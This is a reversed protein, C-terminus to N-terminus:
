YVSNQNFYNKLGLKFIAPDNSGRIIAPLSNWLTQARFFPSRRLAETRPRIVNVGSASLRTAAGTRQIRGIKAALVSATASNCLCRYSLMGLQTAYRTRIPNLRFLDLLAAVGGVSATSDDYRLGALCRLYRKEIQALRSIVGASGDAWVAAGYDLDPQIVSRVFALRAANSLLRHCRYLVGIKRGVKRIVNDMQPKWSLRSDILVGLYRVHPSPSLIVNNVSVTYISTDETDRFKPFLLFASKQGNLAMLNESYWSTVSNIDQQLQTVAGEFTENSSYLCADDAYLILSSQSSVVSTINRTFFNFLLPGLKSGQPVGRRVPSLNSATSGVSVFQRRDLLYSSLWALVKGKVGCSSLGRLLLSHDVTDFAKKVDLFVAASRLGADKGSLLDQTLCVMADQTSRSKRFGFQCDPILLHKDFYGCLSQFVFHELIKSVIPLLSVPRFNKPDLRSGSKFIPVVKACKWEDPFVGSQLSTNFLSALSPSIASAGMKLFKGDIGDHGSAKNVDIRRLLDSVEDSSVLPFNFLISSNVDDAQSHTELSDEELLGRPRRESSQSMGVVSAFQDCLEGASPLQDSVVKRRGTICNITSWFRAPNHSLLTLKEIFFNEKAARLRYKIVNRQKKYKENFFRREELPRKRSISAKRYFNRQRIDVIIQKTMWPLSSHKRRRSSSLPFHRNVVDLFLSKWTDWQDNVDTFSSIVSWPVHYLDEIFDLASSDSRPKRSFRPPRSSSLHVKRAVCILNHDSIGSADISAPATFSSPMSSLAVDLLSSTSSTVRTPSTILNKLQLLDLCDSVQTSTKSSSSLDVNIDGMLLVDSFSASYIHDLMSSLSDIFISVSSSPPRYIAGVISKLKGPLRIEALIVELNQLSDPAPLSSSCLKSSVYLCVGGGHRSRDNRFLEFGEVCLFNNSISDDLKTESLALVDVSCRRLILRIWDLKAILSNINLHAFIVGSNSCHYSRLSTIPEGYQTLNSPDLLLSTDNDLASIMVSDTSTSSLNDDLIISDLSSSEDSHLNLNTFPLACRSCEWELSDSESCLYTYDSPPLRECKSHYWRQCFDCLISEQDSRVSKSCWGCPYKVPGPNLEVDGCLFLLLLLFGQCIERNFYVVSSYLRSDIKFKFQFRHRAMMIKYNFRHRVLIAWYNIKLSFRFVM